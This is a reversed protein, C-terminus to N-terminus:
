KCVVDKMEFSIRCMPCQKPNIQELCDKCFAHKCPLTCNSTNTFCIPCEDIYEVSESLIKHINRNEDEDFTVLATRKYKGLPKNKYSWIQVSYEANEYDDSTVYKDKRVKTKKHEFYKGNYEMHPVLQMSVGDDNFYRPARLVYNGYEDLYAQPNPNFINFQNTADIDSLPNPGFAQTDSLSPNRRIGRMDKSTENVRVMGASDVVNDVAWIYEYEEYYEEELIPKDSMIKGLLMKKQKPDLLVKVIEGQQLFRQYVTNPNLWNQKKTKVPSEPAPLEEDKIEIYPEPSIKPPDNTPLDNKPIVAKQLASTKVSINPISIKQSLMSHIEPTRVTEGPPYTIFAVFHNGSSVIPRATTLANTGRVALPASKVGLNRIFIANSADLYARQEERESLPPVPSGDDFYMLQKDPHVHTGPIFKTLDVDSGNMFAFSSPNSGTFQNVFVGIRYKLVFKNIEEDTGWRTPHFNLSKRLNQAQQRMDSDGNPNIDNDFNAVLVEDLNANGFVGAILSYFLCNGDGVVDVKFLDLDNWVIQENRSPSSLGQKSSSPKQTNFSRPSTFSSSPKQTNFSRPSTFNGGSSSSSNRAYKGTYGPPPPDPLTKPDYLWGMSKYEDYKERYTDYDDTTFYGYDSRRNGLVTWTPSSTSSSSGYRDYFKTISDNKKNEYDYLCNKKKFSDCM